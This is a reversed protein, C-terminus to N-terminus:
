PYRGSYLLLPIQEYPKGDWLKLARNIHTLAQDYSKQHQYVKAAKNISLALEFTDRSSEGLPTFTEIALLAYNLAEDYKKMELLVGSIDNYSAGIGVGDNIKEFVALADYANQLATPFERRLTYVYRLLGYVDGIAIKHDISRFRNLAKNLYVLSSDLEDINCYNIGLVFELEGKWYITREDNTHSQHVVKKRYTFPLNSTFYNIEEALSDVMKLKVSDPLQRKLVAQLDAETPTQGYTISLNMILLLWLLLYRFIYTSQLSLM